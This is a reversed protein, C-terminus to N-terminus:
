RTRRILLLAEHLSFNEREMLYACVCTVSRSLGAYCHVLVKGKLLAKSIFDSTIQFYQALDQAEDDNTELILYEFANPFYCDERAHLWPEDYVRGGVLNIIHTIGEKELKRKNAAALKDARCGHLQQRIDLFQQQSNEAQAILNAM